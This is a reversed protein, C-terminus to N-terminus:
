LAMSVADQWEFASLWTCFLSSTKLQGLDYGFTDILMVNSRVADPALLMRESQNHIFWGWGLSIAPITDSQWESFGATRAPVTQVKLEQLFNIDNESFMHMFPLANLNALRLRIYGDSSIALAQREVAHLQLHTDM